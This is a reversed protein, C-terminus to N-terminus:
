IHILSLELGVGKCCSRPSGLYGGALLMDGTKRARHRRDNGEWRRGGARGERTAQARGEGSAASQNAPWDGFAMVPGSKAAKSVRIGRIPRISASRESLQKAWMELVPSSCRAGIPTGLCDTGAPLRVPRSVGDGFSRWIADPAPDRSHFIAM